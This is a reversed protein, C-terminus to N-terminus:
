DMIFAFDHLIFMKLDLPICSLSGLGNRIINIACKPLKNKGLMNSVYVVFYGLM